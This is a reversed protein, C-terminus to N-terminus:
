SERGAFYAELERRVFARARHLLVRQNGLSISLTDAVEQGDYGQLDHLEVVIRQREPLRTVAAQIVARVEADIAADEPSRWPSPFRRWGGPEREGAQQFRVPDVTPGSEAMPVPLLRSQRIGQRRAINVVIGGVWSRLSSRGEFRDLGRLAAIWAEQIVDEAAHHDPVHARAIRLMAPSWSDVLEAFLHLDGGKLAAVLDM